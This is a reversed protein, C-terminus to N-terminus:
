RAPDVAALRAPVALPRRARPRAEPAQGRRARVVPARAREGRRSARERRRGAGARRRSAHARRPRARDARASARAAPARAAWRTKAIRRKREKLKRTWSMTWSTKTTTTEVHWATPAEKDARSPRLM